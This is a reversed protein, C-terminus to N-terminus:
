SVLMILLCLTCFLNQQVQIALALPRYMSPAITLPNVIALLAPESVGAKHKLPEARAPSLSHSCNCSQLHVFATVVANHLGQLICLMQEVNVCRHIPGGRYSLEANGQTHASTEHQCSASM